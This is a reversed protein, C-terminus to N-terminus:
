NLLLCEASRQQWVRLILFQIRKILSEVEEETTMANQRFALDGVIATERLYGDEDISGVIQKHDKNKKM